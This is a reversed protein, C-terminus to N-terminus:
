AHRDRDDGRLVSEGTEDDYDVAVDDHDPEPVPDAFYPPGANRAVPRTLAEREGSGGSDGEARPRAHALGDGHSEAPKEEAARRADDAARAKMIVTRLRAHVAAAEPSGAAPRGDEVALVVATRERERRERRRELAIRRIHVPMCRADSTRFHESVAPLCDAYDLDGIDEHWAMVDADGVTRQDRAAIAALIRATDGPTM